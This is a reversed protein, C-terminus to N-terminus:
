WGTHHLWLQSILSREEENLIFISQVFNPFQAKILLEQGCEPAYFSYMLGLLVQNGHSYDGM